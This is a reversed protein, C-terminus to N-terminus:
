SARMMMLVAPCGAVFEAYLLLLLLLLPSQAGIL